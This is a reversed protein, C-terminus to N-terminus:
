LARSKARAGTQLGLNMLGSTIKMSLIFKYCRFNTYSFTLLFQKSLLIGRYIM